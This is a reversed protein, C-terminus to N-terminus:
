LPFHMNSLCDLLYAKYTFSTPIFDNAVGFYEGNIPITRPFFFIFPFAFVIIPLVFRDSSQRWYSAREDKPLSVTKLQTLLFLVQTNFLAVLLALPDLREFVMPYQGRLGTEPILLFLISLLSFVLCILSTLTGHKQLFSVIHGLRNKIQTDKSNALGLYISLLVFFLLGALIILRSSTFGFLVANKSNSPLFILYLFISAAEVSFLYFFASLISISKKKSM